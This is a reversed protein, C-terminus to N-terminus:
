RRLAPAPVARAPGHSDGSDPAAHQRAHDWARQRALPYNRLIEARFQAQNITKKVDALVKEHTEEDQLVVHTGFVKVSIM